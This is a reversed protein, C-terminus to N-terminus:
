LQQIWVGGGGEKPWRGGQAVRSMLSGEGLRGGRGREVQVSMNWSRIHPCIILKAM